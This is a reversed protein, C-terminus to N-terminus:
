GDCSFVYAKASGGPVLFVDYGAGQQLTQTCVFQFILICIFMWESSSSRKAVFMWFCKSVKTQALHWTVTRVRLDASADQAFTRQRGHVDWRMMETMVRMYEWNSVRSIEAEIDLGAVQLLEVKVPPLFGLYIPRTAPLSLSLQMWNNSLVSISAFWKVRIQSPGFNSFKTALTSILYFMIFSFRFSILRLGKTNRSRKTREQPGSEALAWKGHPSPSDLHLSVCGAVSVVLVHVLERALRLDLDIRGGYSLKCRTLMNLMDLTSITMPDITTWGNLRATFGLHALWRWEAVETGLGITWPFWHRVLPIETDELQMDMVQWHLLWVTCISDYLFEPMVNLVHATLHCLAGPHPSVRSPCANFIAVRLRPLQTPLDQAHASNTDHWGSLWGRDLHDSLQRLRSSLPWFIIQMIAAASGIEGGWLWHSFPGRSFSKHSKWSMTKTHDKEVLYVLQQSFDNAIAMYANPILPFVLTQLFWGDMYWLWCNQAVVM